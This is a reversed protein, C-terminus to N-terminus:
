IARRVFFRLAYMESQCKKVSSGKKKRWNEKEQMKAHGWSEILM